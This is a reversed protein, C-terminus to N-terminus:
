KEGLIIKKKKTAIFYILATLMTSDAFFSITVKKLVLKKIEITMIEM